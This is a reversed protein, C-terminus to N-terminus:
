PGARLGREVFMSIGRSLMVSVVGEQRSMTNVDLGLVLLRSGNAM